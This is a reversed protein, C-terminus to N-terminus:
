VTVDAVDVLRDDDPRYFVSQPGVAPDVEFTLAMQISEGSALEVDGPVDEDAESQAATRVNDAGDIFGHNDQLIFHDINVGFNGDTVMSTVTVTVRVYENGDEPADDDGYDLWGVEIGDVVVEAVAEDDENYITAPAMAAPDSPTPESMAMTTAAGDAPETADPPASASATGFAAASALAGVAAASTVLRRM